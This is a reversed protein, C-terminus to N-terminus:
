GKSGGLNSGVSHILLWTDRNRPLNCGNHLINEPKEVNILQNLKM